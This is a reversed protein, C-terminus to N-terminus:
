QKHRKRVEKKLFENRSHEHFYRPRLPYFIFILFQDKVVPFNLCQEGKGTLPTLNASLAITPSWYIGYINREFLDIFTFNIHSYIM